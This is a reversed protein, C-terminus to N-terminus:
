HIISRFLMKLINIILNAASGAAKDTSSRDEELREIPRLTSRDIPTSLYSGINGLTDNFSQSQLLKKIEEDLEDHKKQEIGKKMRQGQYEKYKKTEGHNMWFGHCKQCSEINISEPINADRFTTLPLNCVPCLKQKQKNSNSERFKDVEINELREVEKEELSFLSWEDFWIGGCNNCQNLKITSGYHSVGKVEKLEQGCNPCLM